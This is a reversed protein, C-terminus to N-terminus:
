QHFALQCIFDTVYAERALNKGLADSILLQRPIGIFCNEKGQTSPRKQSKRM